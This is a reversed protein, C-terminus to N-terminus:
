PDDISTIDIVDAFIELMQARTLVENIPWSPIGMRGLKGVADGFARTEAFTCDKLKKGNPLRMNSADDGHPITYKFPDRIFDQRFQERLEAETPYKKFNSM